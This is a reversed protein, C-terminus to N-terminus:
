FESVDHIKESREQYYRFLEEGWKIATADFSVIDHYVDYNGNKLFLGLSLSFDTVTFAVKFNENCVMLNSNGFSLGKELEKSYERRIREFVDKTVILSVEKKKKALELFFNPYEPHFIPSVGKVTTSKALSKMFEKHPEFVETPSSKVIKFEELEYLRMQFEEPIGRINHEKWFDMNNEFLKLTKFFRGFSKTVAEGVDTLVYKKGDQFILNEKELKRIQPIIEPSTIKFYDRIEKLTKPEEQLMFLIDRRKESLALLSLLGKAKM